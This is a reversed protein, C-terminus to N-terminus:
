RTRRCFSKKSFSRRITIILCKHRLSRFLVFNRNRFIKLISYNRKKFFFFRCKFTFSKFNKQKLVLFNKNLRTFEKYSTFYTCISHDLFFVDRPISKINPHPRQKTATIPRTLFKSPAKGAACADKM